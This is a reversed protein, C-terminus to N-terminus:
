VQLLWVVEEVEERCEGDRERVTMAAMWTESARIRCILYSSLLKGSSRERGSGRGHTDRRGSLLLRDSPVSM